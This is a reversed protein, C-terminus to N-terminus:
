IEIVDEKIFRKYWNEFVENTILHIEFPSFFGVSNLLSAIIKGREEPRIEKAIVLLDIDSNVSYNGKVISGFIYVKVDGLIKNAEEKIIRAYKLPEDFYKQNERKRELLLDILDM